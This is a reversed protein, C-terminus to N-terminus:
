PNLLKSLRILEGPSFTEPRRTFDFDGREALAAIVDRNLGLDPHDRLIKHFQKRRWQFAARVLSRLRREEDDTLPPTAHPVIEVM